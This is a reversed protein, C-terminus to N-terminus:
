WRGLAASLVAIAAPGATSTRLVEGGLRVPEAGSRTLLELEDPAIGGEPGVVLVLDRSDFRLGRLPVPASPELLLMRHGPLLEALQATSMPEAVEPLWARMSQKSAERAISHWRARGRAAKAADWRVVSRSAPWPIVRDVGLETAAQVALEDRDGKALAQVLTITLEPRPLREVRAARLELREREAHEVRGHVVLGAGNGISLPQGPAVRSVTVAHRADPGELRILDGPRAQALDERLYRHAM